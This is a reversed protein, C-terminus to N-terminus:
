LQVHSALAFTSRAGGGFALLCEKMRQTPHQWREPHFRDPDPFAKEDRHLSYAQTTVTIGEPVFHGALDQGGAPVLRPLGAPLASFLRLTEQIIWNLYTLDKLQNGYTYDDPLTGLEELLRSRIQPSKCVSWVLYVLTTATTDTGGVIYVQANDRMQISTLRKENGATYLNSFLTPYSEFSTDNIREAYRDLSQQAYDVTRHQLARADKFVPIPLYKALRSLFPFTIRLNSVYGMMAFDQVSQSM